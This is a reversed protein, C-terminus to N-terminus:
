CFPTVGSLAICEGRIDVNDPINLDVAMDNPTYERTYIGGGLIGAWNLIVFSTSSGIVRGLSWIGGGFESASNLWMKSADLTLTGDNFIGGGSYAATNDVVTTFNLTLVGRNYIGGGDTAANGNEVTLHSLTVTGSTITLVTGSDNGDLFAPGQLTLTKNITFNPSPSVSANTCTGSVQLTSGTPANNIATQLNTIACNVTTTIAGASQVGLGLFSAGAVLSAM